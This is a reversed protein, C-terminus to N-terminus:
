TKAKRTKKETKEKQKNGFEKIESTKEKEKRFTKPNSSLHNSLIKIFRIRTKNNNM